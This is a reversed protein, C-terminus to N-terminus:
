NFHCILVSEAETMEQEHKLLQSTISEVTDKKQDELTM